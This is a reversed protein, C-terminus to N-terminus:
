AFRKRRPKVSLKAMQPQISSINVCHSGKPSLFTFWAYFQTKIWDSHNDCSLNTAKFGSQSRSFTYRTTKAETYNKAMSSTYRTTKAINSMALPSQFTQFTQFSQIKISGCVLFYWEGVNYRNNNVLYRQLWIDRSVHSRFCAMM